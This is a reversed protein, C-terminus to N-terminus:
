HHDGQRRREGPTNYAEHRKCLPLQQRLLGWVVGGISKQCLERVQSSQEDLHAAVSTLGTVEFAALVARAAACLVSSASITM